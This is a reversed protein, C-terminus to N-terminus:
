EIKSPLLLHQCELQECQHMSLFALMLCAKLRDICRLRDNAFKILSHFPVQIVDHSDVRQCAEEQKANVLRQFCKLEDQDSLSDDVFKNLCPLLGLNCKSLSVWYCRKLHDTLTSDLMLQVRM